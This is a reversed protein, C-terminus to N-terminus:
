LSKAAPKAVSGLESSSDDLNPRATVPPTSRHPPPPPAHGGSRVVVGLPVITPEHEGVAGELREIVRDLEFLEAEAAEVQVNKLRIQEELESISAKLGTVKTSIAERKVAGDRLIDKLNVNMSALTNKVVQVVLDPQQELPLTRMLQVAEDIGYKARPHSQAQLSPEIEPDSPPSPNKKGFLSMLANREMTSSQTM